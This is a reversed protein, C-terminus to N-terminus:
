EKRQSEDQRASDIGALFDAVLQEVSVFRYRLEREGIHKHDGQGSKNLNTRRGGKADFADKCALWCPRADLDSSCM